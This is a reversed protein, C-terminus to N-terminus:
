RKQTGKYFRNKQTTRHSFSSEESTKLSLPM